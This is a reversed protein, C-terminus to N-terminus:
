RGMVVFYSAEYAM